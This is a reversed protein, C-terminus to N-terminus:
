TGFSKRLLDIIALVGVVIPFFFEFLGRITATPKSMRNWRRLYGMQEVFQDEIIKTEMEGRSVIARDTEVMDKLRPRSLDQIADLASQTIRLRWALFDSWAYLAFAVFFYAVVAAMGVLLVKQNTSTFDIGLATIKSPIIDAQVILIGLGASTLLARREKRTLESLPDQLIISTHDNAAMSYGLGLTFLYLPHSSINRALM